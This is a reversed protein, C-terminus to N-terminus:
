RRLAASVASSGESHMRFQRTRSFATRFALPHWASRFNIAQPIRDAIISADYPRRTRYFTQTGRVKPVSTTNVAERAANRILAGIVVTPYRSLSTAAEVM